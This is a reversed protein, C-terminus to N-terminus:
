SDREGGKHKLEGERVSLPQLRRELLPLADADDGADLVARPLSPRPWSSAVLM